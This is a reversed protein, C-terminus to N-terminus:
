VYCLKRSPLIKIYKWDHRETQDIWLPSTHMCPVRLGGGGGVFWWMPVVGLGTWFYENPSVWRNALLRNAKSQFVKKHFLTNAMEGGTWLYFSETKGVNVGFLTLVEIRSPLSTESFSTTSLIKFNIPSTDMLWQRLIMMWQWHCQIQETSTCNLCEIFIVNQIQESDIFAIYNQDAVHCLIQSCNVLKAQGLHLAGLLSWVVRRHSVRSFDNVEVRFARNCLIGNVSYQASALVVSQHGNM